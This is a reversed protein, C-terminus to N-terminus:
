RGAQWDNPLFGGSSMWGDLGDILEALRLAAAEGALEPNLALNSTISRIEALAANPDM